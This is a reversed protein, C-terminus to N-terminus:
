RLQARVVNCATVKNRKSNETTEERGGRSSSKDTAFESFKLLGEVERWVQRQLSNDADEYKRRQLCSYNQSIRDASYEM